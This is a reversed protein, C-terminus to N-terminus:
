VTQSGREKLTVSDSQKGNTQSDPQRAQKTELEFETM